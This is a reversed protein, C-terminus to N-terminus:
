RRSMRSCSVVVQYPGPMAPNPQAQIWIATLNDLQIRQQKLHEKVINSLFLAVRDADSPDINHGLLSPASGEMLGMKLKGDRGEPDVEEAVMEINILIARVKTGEPLPDSM